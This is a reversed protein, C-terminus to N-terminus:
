LLVFLVKVIGGHKRLVFWSYNVNSLVSKATLQQINSVSYM